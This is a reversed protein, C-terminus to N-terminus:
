YDVRTKSPVVEIWTQGPRLRIEKGQEDRYVTWARLAGKEWRGRYVQGDIFFLAKGSGIMQVDLRGEADIVKTNTYQIIINRATLQRGTVNDIHAKGGNYRFYLNKKPDYTYKVLSYRRPFNIVIEPAPLGNHLKEGPSLFSFGPVRVHAQYGKDLSVQRIKDTDGYLNHPAKRSKIRWYAGGRRGIGFEDMDAVRATKVFKKADESGGCHAYLANYELAREIYYPRASRVPGVNDSDQSHYIALFRTIGGEALVEYVIDAKPLGSQPRAAPANEVMVAVPRKELNAPDTMIGTLPAPVYNDPVVSDKEKGPKEVEKQQIAFPLPGKDKISCGTGYISLSLFLVVMLAWLSVRKLLSNM